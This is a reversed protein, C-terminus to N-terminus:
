GKPRDALAPGLRYPLVLEPFGSPPLVFHSPFAMDPLFGPVPRAAARGGTSFSRGGAGCARGPTIGGPTIGM